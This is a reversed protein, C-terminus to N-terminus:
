EEIFSAGFTLISDALHLDRVLSVVGSHYGCYICYEDNILREMDFLFLRDGIILENEDPRLTFRTKFLVYEGPKLKELMWKEVEKFGSPNRSSVEGLRHKLYRPYISHRVKGPSRWCMGYFYGSEIADEVHPFEIVEDTKNHVILEIVSNKNDIGIDFSLSLKAKRMVQFLDWIPVLGLDITEM